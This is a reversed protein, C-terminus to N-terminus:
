NKKKFVKKIKQYPKLYLCDIIIFMPLKAGRNIFINNFKHVFLTILQIFFIKSMYELFNESTIKFFIDKHQKFKKGKLFLM